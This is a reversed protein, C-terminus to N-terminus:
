LHKKLKFIYNCSTSEILQSLLHLSYIRHSDQRVRSSSIVSACTCSALLICLLMKSVFISAPSHIEKWEQQEGWPGAALFLKIGQVLIPLYKNDLCSIENSSCSRLSLCHNEFLSFTAGIPCKSFPTTVVIPFCRTLQPWPHQLFMRLVQFM